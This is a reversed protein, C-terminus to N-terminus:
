NSLNIVAKFSNLELNDVNMCKTVPVSFESRQQREQACCRIYVSCLM